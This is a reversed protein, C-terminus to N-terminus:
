GGICTHLPAQVRIEFNIGGMKQQERKRSSNRLGCTLILLVTISCVTSKWGLGESNVELIFWRM